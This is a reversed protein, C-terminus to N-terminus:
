IPHPCDGARAVSDNPSSTGLNGLWVYGVNVLIVNATTLADRGGFVKENIFTRFRDNVHEELQHIMYIPSHLFILLLGISWDRYLIPVLSLLAAAMFGAGAVWHTKLIQYMNTQQNM